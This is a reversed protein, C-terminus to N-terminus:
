DSSQCVQVGDRGRTKQEPGGHKISHFKCLGFSLLFRSSMGPLDEATWAFPAASQQARRHATCNKERLAPV